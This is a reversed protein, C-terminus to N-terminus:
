NQTKSSKLAIQAAEFIAPLVLIVKTRTFNLQLSRPLFKVMYDEPGFLFSWNRAIEPQTM